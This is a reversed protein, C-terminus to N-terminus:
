HVILKGRKIPFGSPSLIRYFYPGSQLDLLIQNGSITEKFVMQSLMNFIQITYTGINRNDSSRIYLVNHLPNPFLIIEPQSNSRFVLITPSFSVKGDKDVQKLRYYNRGKLPNVDIFSYSNTSTPHKGKGLINGITKWSLGEESRYVEFYSFNREDTTEWHLVNYNKVAYGSFDLLTLPFLTKALQVAAYVDIIGFGYDNNPFSDQHVGGCPQSTSFPRATQELTNEIDNVQGSLSPVASILLAIAGAVHPGAMSTGSLTAFNNNPTSSRVNVGPASVNPKIRGSSDITVPGRSSFSALNDNMDTAGVTFSEEYIAAPFTVTSCSPGRNGASAVVVIGANKVNIIVNHMVNFNSTDCGESLICAWSNNIVDPAYFPDGNQTSDGYPYPAIFWEFCEIYWALTGYGREMNRCGIWKAEPAVGIQNNGGDDGVMTGMTHTGHGYDDCPEALNYGCPNMGSNQIANTDVADHWNYNHNVTNSDANWGRYQLKLAEHDWDYGTDAGGVTVGAGKVDYVIWVSDANINKIGWEITRLQVQPSTEIPEQLKYSSNYLIKKVEPFSAVKKITARDLTTYIANIIVFSQSPIGRKEFFEKLRGQTERAVRVLNHHVYSAKAFRGHMSQAKDTDFQKKLVIVVEARGEKNLVEQLHPSLKNQGIVSITYFISLGFLLVWIRCKYLIKVIKFTTFNNCSSKIAIMFRM